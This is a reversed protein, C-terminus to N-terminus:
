GHQWPKCSISAQRQLTRTQRSASYFTAIILLWPGGFAARRQTVSRATITSADQLVSSGGLLAHKKTPMLVQEATWACAKSESSLILNCYLSAAGRTLRRYVSGGRAGWALCRLPTVRRPAFISSKKVDLEMSLCLSCSSAPREAGTAGAFFGAIIAGGM